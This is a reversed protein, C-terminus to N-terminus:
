ARQRVHRTLLGKAMVRRLEWVDVRRTEQIRRREKLIRPLGKLADWKAKWIVRTQRRLSFYILSVVNMLIHQPLYLWFLPRPMNKFYTWVLNRHGHYVAFDSHQGGTTASGIHRVVAGPVYLCRYGNLRLRFGLDVDESYCFYCADFGGVELFVDRRYLAAAACPSFIEEYRMDTGEAKHNHNRRKVLGSVHYVDGTGDLLTPQTASLMRSGFFAFEPNRKTADVLMALWNPEPFADPNLLAIWNCDKVLNVALNNAAAFGVNETLAFVEPRVSLRELDKLSGDKSANDVVIIRSPPYSQKVLATLCKKLNGGDNWNVVVVAIGEKGLGRCSPRETPIDM